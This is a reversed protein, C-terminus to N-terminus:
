IVRKADDIIFQVSNRGMWNDKRLTGLVDFMDNRSNLIAQGLENDASRFAMAKIGTGSGSSLFCRVHGSGVINAKKFCVNKIVLKPENNGAGYPELMELNGALEPTAGKIDLVGDYELIPVFQKFEEIKDENLSFGAAMTHGGGKTIIGREKASIILAGLDVQPISRASGKVEDEEISMVFSPLNYREKLKGGVIGIVGQHWDTGAVFAIPYESPRSDLM